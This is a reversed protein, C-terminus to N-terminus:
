EVLRIRDGPALQALKWLDSSVVTAPQLYGGTVPHDPGMAVVSGDPHWQLTGFNMGCSRLEAPPVFAPKEIPRLRIGVRNMNPTVEWEEPLRPADHPGRVVRIEKPTRRGAAAKKADISLPPPSGGCEVVGGRVAVYGPERIRGIDIEEGARANWVRPELSAGCWAVRTAERVRLRPGVLVCEFAPAPSENGAAENAIAFAAEDFPGGAIEGEELKSWDRARVVTTMQGPAALAVRLSDSPALPAVITLPRDIPVIRVEDGPALRPVQDTRGLINWGGPTDLPYFGAMTAAIAFSGGSVLNRSTPRRPLAWEEPWGELYGFGARFGLYRVTLPITAIHAIVEERTQGARRVLDDLDLAYERAFSVEVRHLDPPAFSSDGARVVAGALAERDSTGIVYVSEHGVIAALVGPIRHTADAIARLRAATANAVTIFLGRDGAQTIRM